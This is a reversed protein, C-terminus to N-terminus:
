KKRPLAVSRIVNTMHSDSHKRTNLEKFLKRANNAVNKALTDNAECRQIIDLIKADLGPADIDVIFMNHGDKLRDYFWSTYKSRVLIIVSQYSLEFFLRWPTAYGDIDLIYKFASQKEMSIPPVMPGVMAKIKEKDSRELGNEATYHINMTARTIGVDVDVGLAEVANRLEGGQRFLGLVKLRDNKHPDNPWCSTNAGRFVLANRKKSWSTEVKKDHYWTRPGGTEQMFLRKSMIIWADSYIICVDDHAPSTCASLVPIMNKGRKMQPTDFLNVFFCADPLSNRAAITYLMDIATNTVARFGRNWWKKSHLMFCKQDIVWEHKQRANMRRNTMTRLFAHFTNENAYFDDITKSTVGELMPATSTMNAFIQMTHIKGGHVFVFMGFGVVKFMYECSRRFKAAYAKSYHKALYEAFPTIMKADLDTFDHVILSEDRLYDMAGDKNTVLQPIRTPPLSM